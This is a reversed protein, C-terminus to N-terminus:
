SYHTCMGDNGKIRISGDGCHERDSCNYVGIDFFVDDYYYPEAYKDDIITLDFSRTAGASITFNFYRSSETINPFIFNMGYFSDTM